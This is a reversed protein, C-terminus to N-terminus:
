LPDVTVIEEYTAFLQGFKDNKAHTFAGDVIGGPLRPSSLSLILSRYSPLPLLLLSSVIRVDTAMCVIKSFPMDKRARYPFVTRARGVDKVESTATM